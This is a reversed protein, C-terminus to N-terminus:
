STEILLLSYKGTKAMVAATEICYEWSEVSDITIVDDAEDVFMLASLTGFIVELYKVAEERSTTAPVALYILPGDPGACECRFIPIGEKHNLEKRLAFRQIAAVEEPTIPVAQIFPVEQAFYWTSMFHIDQNTRIWILRGKDDRFGVFRCTPGASSRVAGVFDDYTAHSSIIKNHKSSGVHLTLSDGYTVEKAQPPIFHEKRLTASLEELRQKLEVTRAEEKVTLEELLSQIENGQTIRASM